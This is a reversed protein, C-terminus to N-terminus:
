YYAIVTKQFKRTACEALEQANAAPLQLLRIELLAAAVQSICVGKGLRRVEKDRTM